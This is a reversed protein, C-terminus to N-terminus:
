SSPYVLVWGVFGSSTTVAVNQLAALVDSLSTPVTKGTNAKVRAEPKSVHHWVRTYALDGSGISTPIDTAAGNSSFYTPLSSSSTRGALDPRKQPRVACRGRPLM